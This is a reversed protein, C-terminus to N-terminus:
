NKLYIAFSKMLNMSSMHCNVRIPPCMLTAHRIIVENILATKGYGPGGVIVYINDPHSSSHFTSNLINNTQTSSFPTSTTSSTPTINGTGTRTTTSTSYSTGAGITSSSPSLITSPLPITSTGSSVSNAIVTRPSFLRDDLNFSQSPTIAIDGAHKSASEEIMQSLTARLSMQKNKM